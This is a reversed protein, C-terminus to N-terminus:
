QDELVITSITTPCITIFKHFSCIALSVQRCHMLTCPLPAPPISYKINTYPLHSVQQIYIVQWYYMPSPSKCPMYWVQSPFYMPSLFFQLIYLLSTTSLNSLPLSTFHLDSKHPSTYALCKFSTVSVQLYVLSLSVQLNYILSTPPVHSVPLSALHLHSQPLYM